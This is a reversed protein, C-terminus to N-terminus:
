IVIFREMESSKPSKDPKHSGPTSSKALPGHLLPLMPIVLAARGKDCLVQPDSQQHEAITGATNGSVRSLLPCSLTYIVMKFSSRAFM